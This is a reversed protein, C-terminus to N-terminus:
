SRAVPVVVLPGLSAYVASTNRPNGSCPLSIRSRVIFRAGDSTNALSPKRRRAGRPLQDTPLATTKRAMSYWRVPLVPHGAASCSRV